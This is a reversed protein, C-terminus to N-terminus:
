PRLRTRSGDEGLMSSSLGRNGKSGLRRLWSRERGGKGNRPNHGGDVRSGNLRKPCRGEEGGGDNGGYREGRILFIFM